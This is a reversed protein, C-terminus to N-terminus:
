NSILASEIIQELEDRRTTLQYEKDLAAFAAEYKGLLAVDSVHRKLYLVIQSVSILLLPVNLAMSLVDIGEDLMVMAEEREGITLLWLGKVIQFRGIERLYPTEQLMDELETAKREVETLEGALLHVYMEMIAVPMVFGSLKDDRVTTRTHEFRAIAELPRGANAYVELINLITMERHQERSLQDTTLAKECFDL